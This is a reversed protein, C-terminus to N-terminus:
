DGPTSWIAQYRAVRYAAAVSKYSQRVMKAAMASVADITARVGSRGYDSINRYRDDGMHNELYGMEADDLGKMCLEYEATRRRVLGRIVRGGAKNWWTIAVCGGDIDGNNLRRTATSRGIGRIGANFALSVYATDRHPTLRQTKTVDTFYRHLGHRYEAVERRLLETCEEDTKVMGPLVGRTSGYCITWVGVIDQYAANRKGEWGAIFPVAVNLTEAESPEEAFVKSSWMLAALVVIITIVIIRITERIRSDSQKIPRGVIGAILSGLSASTTFYADYDRGTMGFWVEPVVIFLASVVLMCWSISFLTRKWEPVFKM